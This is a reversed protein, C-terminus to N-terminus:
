RSSISVHNVYGAVLRIGLWECFVNPIWRWSWAAAAPAQAVTGDVGGWVGASGGPGGWGVRGRRARGVGRRDRPPGRRRCCRASRRSRRGAYSPPEERGEEAAGGEGWRWVGAGPGRATAGGGKGGEQGRERGELRLRQPEPHEPEDIADPTEGRVSPIMDDDSVPPTPADCGTM